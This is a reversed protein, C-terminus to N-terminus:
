NYQRPPNAFRVRPSQNRNFRNQQYRQGQQNQFMRQRQPRFQPNRFQPQTNRNQFRFRCTNALHNTRNCIYCQPAFQGQRSRTFPQRGRSLSRSRFAQNNRMQRRPFNRNRDSSFSRPRSFGRNFNQNNNNRLIPKQRPRSARPSNQPSRAPSNRLPSPSRPRPSPNQIAMVNLKATLGAPFYIALNDKAERLAEDLSNINKIQAEVMPPMAMRFTQLQIEPPYLLLAAIDKLKIMFEDVNDTEPVFKLELWHKLWDRPTKGYPSYEQLFHAQIDKWSTYNKSTLWDRALGRLTMLFYSKIEDLNAATDTLKQRNLFDEFAQVHTRTKSKDSGDFTDSPFFTARERLTPTVEDGGPMTATSRYDPTSSSQSVGSSSIPTDKSTTSQTGTKLVPLTSIGTATPTSPSTTTLPQSVSLDYAQIDVQQTKQQVVRSPTKNKSLSAIHEKNSPITDLDEPLSEKNLQPAGFYNLVPLSFDTRKHKRRFQIWPQIQSLFRRCETNQFNHYAYEFVQRSPPKLPHEKQGPHLVWLSREEDDLKDQEAEAQVQREIQATETDQSSISVSQENNFSHAVNSFQSLPSSPHLTHRLVRSSSTNSINSVHQMFSSTPELLRKVEKCQSDKNNSSM